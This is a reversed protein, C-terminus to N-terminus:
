TEEGELAVIKTLRRQHRDGEFPTDLWKDILTLAESEPTLRAGLCLVNADNHARALRASEPSWVAAARIGRVKNAAICVGMGTGCVLVGLAGPHQMVARGVAAAYDPYDTSETSHTGLDEVEYGRERLHAVVRGRLSFGAHDSGAYIKSKVTRKM